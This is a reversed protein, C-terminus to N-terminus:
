DSDRRASPASYRPAPPEGGDDADASPALEDLLVDVIRLFHERPIPEKGALWRDLQREKLDLRKALAKIGGALQAAKRLARIEVSDKV